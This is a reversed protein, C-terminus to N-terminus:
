RPVAEWRRRGVRRGRGERQAHALASRFRGPGWFRAEVRRKLEAVDLSEGEADVGVLLEVVAAIAMLAAGIAYGVAPTGPEDSGLLSGFLVPGV